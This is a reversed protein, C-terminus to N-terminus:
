SYALSVMPRPPHHKYLPFQWIHSWEVSHYQASFLAGYLRVNATLSNLIIAIFALASQNRFMAINPFFNWCLLCFRGSPSVSCQKRAPTSEESDILAYKCNVSGAEEVCGYMPAPSCQAWPPPPFQVPHPVNCLIAFCRQIFFEITHKMLLATEQLLNFHIHFLPSLLPLKCVQTFDRTILSSMVVIIIILFIPLFEFISM